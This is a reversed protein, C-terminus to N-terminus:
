FPIDDDDPVPPSPPRNSSGSSNGDSEPKKYNDLYNIVNIIVETTYKTVGDKDEWKNTQMRGEIYVLSGKNLFEGAREAKKDFCVFRTWEVSKQWEDDKKWSHESAGSLNAVAMGNPTYRVEPDQGLRYIGIVKNFTQAM